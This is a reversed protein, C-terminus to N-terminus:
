LLLSFSYGSWAGLQFLGAPCRPCCPLPVEACLEASSNSNQLHDCPPAVSDHNLGLELDSPCHCQM